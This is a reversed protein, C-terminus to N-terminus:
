SSTQDVDVCGMPFPDRHIGRTPASRPRRRGSSQITPAFDRYPTESACRRSAPYSFSALPICSGHNACAPHRLSRHEVIARGHTASTSPKSSFPSIRENVAVINPYHTSLSCFNIGQKFCFGVRRFNQSLRGSALNSGDFERPTSTARSINQDVDRIAPIQWEINVLGASHAGRYRRHIRHNGSM